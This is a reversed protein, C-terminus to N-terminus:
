QRDSISKNIKMKNNKETPMNVVMMAEKMKRTEKARVMSSKRNHVCTLRSRSRLSRMATNTTSSRRSIRMERTKVMKKKDTAMKMIATKDKTLSINSSAPARCAQSEGPAM